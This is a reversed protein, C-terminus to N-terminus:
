QANLEIWKQQTNRAAKRSVSYEGWPESELQDLMFNQTPILVHVEDGFHSEFLRRGQALSPGYESGMFQKQQGHDCSGFHHWLCLGITNAHQASKVGVRRGNETVHEITTHRDLHGMLLCPLCGCYTKINDLRLREDKLIRPTKGVM